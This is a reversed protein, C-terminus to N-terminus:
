SSTASTSTRTTSRRTRGCSSASCRSITKELVHWRGPLKGDRRRAGPLSRQRAVVRRAGPRLHLRFHPHTGGAPEGQGPGGAAREHRQARHQRRGRFHLLRTDDRGPLQGRRHRRHQSRRCAHPHGGKGRDREPLPLPPHELLRFRAALHGPHSRGALRLRVPQTPPGRRPKENQRGSEPPELVCGLVAKRGGPPNGRRHHQLGDCGAANVLAPRWVQAHGEIRTPRPPYDDINTSGLLVADKELRLNVGPRLFLAGSLFRGPPVVVTGGGASACRDISEQIATTNLTKGDGVAGTEVISLGAASRGFPLALIVSVLMTLYARPIKTM